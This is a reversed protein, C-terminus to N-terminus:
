PLSPYKMLLSGDMGAQRSVKAEWTRRPARDRNSEVVGDTEWFMRVEARRRSFLVTKCRQRRRRAAAASTREPKRAVRRGEFCM